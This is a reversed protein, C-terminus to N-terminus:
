WPLLTKCATLFTVSIIAGAKILCFNLTSFKSL